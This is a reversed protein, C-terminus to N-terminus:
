RFIESGGNNYIDNKNEELIDQPYEINLLVGRYYITTYGLKNSYSSYVYSNKDITKSTIDEFTVQNFSPITSLVKIRSYRDFYFTGKTQHNNNIWNLSDVEYTSKYFRNFEDGQNQFVIGGRIGGVFVFPVLLSSLLLYLILLNSFFILSFDNNKTVLQFIKYGAYVIIVSLFILTQLFVREFNYNFSLYPLIVLSLFILLYFIALILYDKRKFCKLFFLCIIAGFIILFKFYYSIIQKIWFFILYFGYNKIENISFGKYISTQEINLLNLQPNNQYILSTEESYNTYIEQYNIERFTLSQVIESKSEQNFIEGMKSFTQYITHTLGDSTQTLQFTWLFGFVLFATLIVLSILPRENKNQGFRALFKQFLFVLLLSFIFIYSTSYHSVIISFGFILLLFKNQIFRRSFIILFFLAFFLYAIEQRILAPMQEIFFIQSIFFFCALFSFIKRNIIKNYLCYLIIPIIAFLIQIMLKFILEMSIDCFFSIIPSLLSLSLCSNYAGQLLNISWHNNLLALRAIQMEGNIDFGIVFWSRMSYMLLLALGIWYLAWPYINENLRKRFIVVLLVYIAIAGLMIMTLYNSGHNNLLFAGLIALVPFTIPIIFFINNLADLKPVKIDFPKLDKNRNWATIGLAILFINFCVLIPYLSLPQDTIGLAPLTWNVALGGFIIFAISLGVTYVLYEWFNINRIKFCLMILLGPVIILFLFALIQRAYFFDIDYGVLFNILILFLSIGFFIKEKTLTFLKVNEFKKTGEEEEKLDKETDVNFFSKVKELFKNPKKEKNLNLPKM